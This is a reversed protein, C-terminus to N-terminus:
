RIRETQQAPKPKNFLQLPEMMRQVQEGRLYEIFEKNVAKPQGKLEAWTFGGIWSLSALIIPPHFIYRLTRLMEFLPHYGITHDRMGARFAAKLRGSGATGTPRYHYASIHPYSEVEWGHMRAMTEAVADIGGFPLSRYGGIQKFCEARFMQIPGGVSNRSCEVKIFKEGYLDYRTAGSVGLMRNRAFTELIQKYYEKGFGIDADLNGVYDYDLDALTEYGAQVAKAKSGFNRRHDGATRLLEIFEYKQAYFEVIKDTLDTSGDSVIVWKLPKISQSLVSHITKEIYEEENRAATILVYANNHKRNRRRKILCESEAQHNSKNTKLTNTKIFQAVESPLAHWYQGGYKNEIYSLLEKYYTVPYEDERATKNDFRMYDPHTNVLVMGGNEAIWDIKKEWVDIHRYGMLVFLTWDQALTYPLEVYGTDISGNEVWFPFITRMGDPQPEFPDTDFTSSDYQINLSHLWELNHHMSPSRFGVAKWDRIYKNIRQAREQFIENSKYLKGDHYLGHVGIEFGDARLREQLATSVTYREPVFNFSSRMGRTKEAEALKSCKEQGKATDVDHTLVLAFRKGDPWDCWHKPREAAQHNIPWVSKSFIRKM